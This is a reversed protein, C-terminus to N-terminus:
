EGIQLSSNETITGIQGLKRNNARRKSIRKYIGRLNVSGEKPELTEGLGELHMEIAHKRQEEEKKEEEMRRFEAPSIGSEIAEIDRRLAYARSRYYEGEFNENFCIGSDHIGEIGISIRRRKESPRTSFLLDFAESDTLKRCKDSLPNEIDDQRILEIEEHAYDWDYLRIGEFKGWELEGDFIWVKGNIILNIPIKSGSNTNFSNTRENISTNFADANTPTYQFLRDGSYDEKWYYVREEGDNNKAVFIFVGNNVISVVDGNKLLELFEEQTREDMQYLYLDEMQNLEQENM